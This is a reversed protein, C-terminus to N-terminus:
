LISEFKKVIGDNYEDFRIHLPKVEGEMFSKMGGVFGEEDNKVLFGGYRKLFDGSGPIDGAVIPVDLTDAELLVLGLPERESPLLFLDCKKLIAYPNSVARIIIINSSASSDAALQVTENFIAGYGGMIILKVDEISRGYKEKYSNKLAEDSKFQNYFSEFARILKAHGKEESFRGITIFKLLSKDELIDKLREETVTCKTEADLMVPLEAKELVGQYFHANEVVSVRSEPVKLKDVLSNKVADSVAAVVDFEKYARLLTPMHQNNKEKMEDSMDNHAFIIKRAPSNLYMMTVFPAYGTFHVIDDIRVGAFKKKWERKFIKNVAAVVFSWQINKSFYLKFCLTEWLSKETMAGSMPLIGVREPIGAVRMPTKSMQSQLFSFYYNNKDADVLNTLNMLSTTIGNRSLNSCYVLINKKGDKGSKASPVYYATVKKDEIKEKPLQNNIADTEDIGLMLEKKGISVYETSASPLVKPLPKKVYNDNLVAELVYRPSNPSDYSGYEALFDTDDYDKPKKLEAALEEATKVRPFPFSDISVYLGREDLYDEDDYTFLIIKKRCNAFDYFVSSYDTLLVDAANLLDYTEYEDTIPVIHKYDSYDFDAATFIHFKVFMVQNDDMLSDLVHFYNSCDNGQQNDKKNTLTGRWTPMYVILQKDSLGLQKKVEAGRDANFFISNRPYGSMLAKGQYLKTLGYDEFFRDRMYDNPYILFDSILFNHQVNGIAYARNEVKRGMAKFPTGHWTNTYIQGKRKIFWAPFSTDNFLYKCRALYQKYERGSPEIYEPIDIGHETFIKTFREREEEKLVLVVSYKEGKHTYNGLSLEKLLYFINGAVDGGGKSEFLIYNELLPKKLENFYYANDNAHRIKNKVKVAKKKYKKAKNWVFKLPNM